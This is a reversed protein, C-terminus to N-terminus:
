KRQKDGQWQGNYLDEKEVEYSENVIAQAIRAGVQINVPHIVHMFCGMNSTRFGADFQGSHAICGSRVLSSRTKFNLVANNIINCGEMLQVEYYGPELHFYMLNVGTQAKIPVPEIEEYNPLTTKGVVPIVGGGDVIRFIKSVRVDVGQQQIGTICVNTVIGKEVIQKGTLQM